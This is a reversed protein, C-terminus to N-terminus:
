LTKSNSIRIDFSLFFSSNSNVTNHPQNPQNIKVTVWGVELEVQKNCIAVNIM